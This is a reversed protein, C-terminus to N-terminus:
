HWGSWGWGSATSGGTASAYWWGAVLGVMATLALLRLFWVRPQGRPSTSLSLALVAVPLLVLGSVKTLAALGILLGLGLTRLWRGDARNPKLEAMLLVLVWATLFMVLNDNNIAANIFLVMPNFAVLAATLLALDPQSPALSLALRYAGLVTGAELLLSLWRILYVALVTGGQWPGQGPPHAVLNLNDTAGPVGINPFPNRVSHLPYDSTDLWGTLLAALVYYLPPQHGEQAWPTEVGPQQVPLRRNLVLERVVGYHWIEDSAEFIPTDLSYCVGLVLYTLLLLALFRRGPGPGYFADSM